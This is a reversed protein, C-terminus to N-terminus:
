FDEDDPSSLDPLAQEIEEPSQGAELRDVVDDFEPPMEEGVEASMKRMMQGLARPDEELGELQSPDSMNELRSEVSRAVRVRGIKRQVNASGCHTCQVPRTGYEAYTLFVQFRKRCDLCRYEYFPM